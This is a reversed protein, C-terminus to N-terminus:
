LEEITRVLLEKVKKANAEMVKTVLEPTVSEENEKWCDYDTVLGIAQYPIKLENALQVEPVSSMNVLEAGLKQFMFSEAKTSFRPGEITVMTGTPHYSFGLEQATKVLSQRLEADFPLAMPTHISGNTFNEFYTLKRLKTWDIFQDLFVLDGPCFDERLSGCATTALIHTCGIEKLAWINAHYPVLTPSIEHNKGHRSIIAVQKDGIMGTTIKSSTKGFPTEVEIEKFDSLINPDELGSGGIIGVMIKNQTM